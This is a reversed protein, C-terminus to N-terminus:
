GQSKRIWSLACKYGLTQLNRAAQMFTLLSFFPLKLEVGTSIVAYVVTYDSSRFKETSAPILSEYGTQGTGREVERIKDRIMDRSQSDAILARASVTGQNFLHSLRSSSTKNKVHILQKERSILDCIEINSTAGTPRILKRDLCLLSASYNDAVRRNYSEENEDAKAFPLDICETQKFFEEVEEALELAVEYWMGGSLIYNRGKVVTEFCICKQIKWKDGCDRGAGDVEHVRHSSLFELSYETINCKRMAEFYQSANLDPYVESSRFGRYKVSNRRDPDYIVPFALHFNEIAFNKIAENIAEVLQFNLKEILERDRIHCVQDIWDFNEKYDEKGYYSYADSCIQPLNDVVTKRHVTLSDKGSVWSGFEEYRPTGGLCYLIDCNIDINFATQDSGRSTQSRRILTNDDPTRIDMSKIQDPDVTNLVIRLGFNQEFKSSDLKVHGMGFSVAFWRDRTWIFVIGYTTKNRLEDKEDGDLDLFNAWKPANTGGMKGLSIKAGEIKTWDKLEIESLLSDGPELDEKLLRISLKQTQAMKYWSCQKQDYNRECGLSQLLFYQDGGCSDHWKM